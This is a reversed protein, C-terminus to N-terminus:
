RRGNVGGPVRGPEGAAALGAAPEASAARRRGHAGRSGARRVGDSHATSRPSRSRRSSGTCFDPARDAVRQEHDGRHRHVDAADPGDSGHPGHVRLRRESQGRGPLHAGGRRRAAHHRPRSDDFAGAPPFFAVVGMPSSRPCRARCGSRRFSSTSTKSPSCRRRGATRMASSCADRTLLIVTDTDNLNNIKGTTNLVFITKGNPDKAVFPQPVESSGRGEQNQDDAPGQRSRRPESRDMPVHGDAGELARSDLHADDPRPRLFLRHVTAPSTAITRRFSSRSSSAPFSAFRRKMLHESRQPCITPTGGEPPKRRHSALRRTFAGRSAESRM